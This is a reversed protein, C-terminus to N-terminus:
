AAQQSMGKLKNWAEWKMKDKIAFMGPKPTTNDGFNGQKVHGVILLMHKKGMKNM